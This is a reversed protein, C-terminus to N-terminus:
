LLNTEVNLNFQEKPYINLLLNILITLTYMYLYVVHRFSTISETRHLKPIILCQMVIQSIFVKKLPHVGISFILRQHRFLKM